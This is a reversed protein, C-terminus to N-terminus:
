EDLLRVAEITCQVPFSEACADGVWVEVRDGDELDDLTVEEGSTGRLFVPDGRLLSMGDFYSDSPETLVPGEQETVVAVVGTVDPERVPPSGVGACAVAGGLVLLAAAAAARIRM